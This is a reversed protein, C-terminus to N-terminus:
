VHQVHAFCTKNSNQIKPQTCQTKENSKTSRQPSNNWKSMSRKTSNKRQDNINKTLANLAADIAFEMAAAACQTVFHM